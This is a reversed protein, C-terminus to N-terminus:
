KCPRSIDVEHWTKRMISPYLSAIAQQKMTPLSMNSMSTVEEKMQIEKWLTWIQYFYVYEYYFINCPHKRRCAAEETQHSERDRFCTEHLHSHKQWRLQLGDVHNEVQEDEDWFQKTSTKELWLSRKWPRRRLQCKTSKLSYAGFLTSM